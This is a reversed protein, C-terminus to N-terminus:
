FKRIFIGTVSWISTSTSNKARVRWYYLGDSSSSGGTLICSSAEDDVCRAVSELEQMLATPSLAGGPACPLSRSTANSFNSLTSIQIDYKTANPVCLWTLIFYTNKVIVNSVPSKLVPRGLTSTNSLTNFSKESGYLTGCINTNAYARYFYRTNPLLNLLNSTFTGIGIGNTSKTNLLNANPATKTDWVIGKATIEVNADTITSITTASNSTINTADNTSINIRCGITTFSIENGYSTGCSNTAYARYYYLTNPMLNILYSTFALNGAGNRSKTALTIDPKSKTDWVVGREIIDYGNNSSIIGGAIASNITIDRIPVTIIVPSCNLTVFSEEKGYYPGCDNIAYIRYYYRTNSRLNTLNINFSGGGLGIEIKTSLSIDPMSKTDWVVGRRLIPPINGSTIMGSVTVSNFSINTAANTTVSISCSKTTFSKEESSYTTGCSNIAYARYYYRTNQSLNNVTESFFGVGSSGTRPVTKNNQIINPLSTTAWAFGRETIIFGEDSLVNGNLIGSNHSINTATDTKINPPCSTVLTIFSKKEGEVICKGLNVFAFFYYTKGASLNTLDLIFDGNLNSNSVFKTGPKDPELSVYFGNEIINSGSGIIKGSLKASKNSINFASNTTVKIITNPIKVEEEKGYNTGVKNTAFPRIYYVLNEKLPIKALLLESDDEIVFKNDDKTPNKSTSYCFGKELIESGGNHNIKASVTIVNNCLVPSQLISIKPTLPKLTWLFDDKECSVSFLILIIIHFFNILNYRNVFFFFKDSLHSIWAMGPKKLPIM